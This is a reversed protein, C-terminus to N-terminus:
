LRKTLKVPTSLMEDDKRFLEMTGFRTRVAGVAGASRVNALLASYNGDTRAKGKISDLNIMEGGVFYTPSQDRAAGQLTEKGVRAETRDFFLFGYCWTPVNLIKYPDREDIPADRSSGGISLPSLYRVYHRANVDVQQKPM